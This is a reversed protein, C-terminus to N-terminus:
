SGRLPDFKRKSFTADALLGARLLKQKLHDPLAEFKEVTLPAVGNELFELGCKCYGCLSIDGPKPAVNGTTNTWGDLKKSCRPCTFGSGHSQGQKM